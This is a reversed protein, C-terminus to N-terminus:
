IGRQKEELLRTKLIVGITRLIIRVDKALSQDRVYELQLRVKQPMITDIYEAIPNPGAILKGEDHFRLSASDTMGPRVSLIAVREEETYYGFYFPAEPRPGVLSMEGKLVNILQPLEDLKYERLFKGVKTVRPDGDATGMPGLKEADDVMTRFKYMQITKGHRGLRAGRYFVPGPSDLKSLIAIVGFLPGLLVLGVSSFVLDFLRKAVPVNM